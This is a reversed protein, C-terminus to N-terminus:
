SHRGQSLGAPRTSSPGPVASRSPALVIELGRNEHWGARSNPASTEGDGAPAQTRAADLRLSLAAIGGQNLLDRWISDAGTTMTQGTPIISGNAGSPQSFVSANPESAHQAAIDTGGRSLTLRASKSMLSGGTTLTSGIVDDDTISDFLTTTQPM